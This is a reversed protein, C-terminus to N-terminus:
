AGSYHAQLFAPVRIRETNEDVIEEKPLSQYIGSERDFWVAYFNWIYTLLGWILDEPVGYLKLYRELIRPELEYSDGDPLVLIITKEFPERVFCFFSFEPDYPPLNDPESFVGPRFLQWWSM